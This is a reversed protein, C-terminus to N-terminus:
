PKEQKGGEIWCLFREKQAASAKTGSPPMTENQLRTGAKDAAAVVGQFTDLNLAAPAGNRANGSLKSSHCGTCLTDLIPKIDSEYDVSGQTAPCSGQQVADIKDGCGLLLGAAAFLFSRRRNM